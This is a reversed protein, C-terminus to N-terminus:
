IQTVFLYIEEPFLSVIEQLTLNLLCFLWNCINNELYLYVCDIVSNNWLIYKIFFLFFVKPLFYVYKMYAEIKKKLFTVKFYRM